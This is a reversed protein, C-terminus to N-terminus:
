PKNHDKLQGVSFVGTSWLCGQVFGLWRFAKEMRGEAVFQEMRDLMAHCHALIARRDLSIIGHPQSTAPIGALTFTRRYLRIVQRVKEATM